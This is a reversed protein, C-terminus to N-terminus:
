LEDLVVVPSNSVISLVYSPGVVAVFSDYVVIHSVVSPMNLAVASVEVIVSYVGLACCDETVDSNVCRVKMDIVAKPIVEVVDGSVRGIEFVDCDEESRVPDSCIETADDGSCCFTRM